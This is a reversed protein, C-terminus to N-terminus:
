LDRIALDEKRHERRRFRDEREADARLGDDLVYLLAVAGDAREAVDFGTISKMYHSSVANLVDDISDIADRVDRRSAPTLPTVGEDVALELDRHAIHRNRWDRCFEARKKAAVVLDQVSKRVDDDDVLDPLMQITLNKRKGFSRPPDTLRSIHLIAGEWLSDEVIRFFRPAAKNLLELRSPKTGFLEVYEGWEMHLWAVEHWLAYYLKGLPEGMVAIYEARAEKAARRRNM